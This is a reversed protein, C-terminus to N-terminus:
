FLSSRLKNGLRQISFSEFGSGKAFNPINKIQVESLTEPLAPVGQVFTGRDFRFGGLAQVLMFLSAVAWAQPSCSTPYAFPGEGVRRDFGCYLEPPRQDRFYRLGDLFGTSLREVAHSLGHRSMGWLILANDHPWVSGNHYSVPDFRAERNGLTRIGWGSYLDEDLLSKGLSGAMRSPLLGSLLLHGANSSRVRCPKLEGDLALAFTKMEPVWFASLFRKKLQLALKGCSNSFSAKGIRRSLLAFSNYAWYLYSQVESLAIPHPALEGNAHFVSDESDKWGQQVLGGNTDGRYVLFGTRPDVGYRQIWSFAREIVPWLSELFLFDGTRDVYQAALILYLPTSDVSGYYRGFPVENTQAMEGTRMEHLIKGPEAARFPDERRAQMRGLFLLITRSLEPYAWLTSLGTIISDRGFVTSFWPLGAYPILGERAPTCLIALDKIAQSFCRDIFPDSTKLEPWRMEFKRFGSERNRIIKDVGSFQISSPGKPLSHARKKSEHFKVQFNFSLSEGPKLALVWSWKSPDIKEPPPGQISVRTEREVLDNGYYRYSATRDKSEWEVHRPTSHVRRVGRVEFLDLFDCGIEWSFPVRVPYPSGNELSCSEVLGDKELVRIQTLSLRVVHRHGSPDGPEHFTLVPLIRHIRDYFPDRRGQAWLPVPQIELVRCSWKSLFRMGRWFLGHHSSLDVDIDGSPPWVGFHDENKHIVDSINLVQLSHVEYPFQEM